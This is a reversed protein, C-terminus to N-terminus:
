GARHSARHRPGPVKVVLAPSWLSNMFMRNAQLRIRYTGPKLKASTWTRSARFPTTRESGNRVTVMKARMRNASNYTASFRWDLVIRGKVVEVKATLPPNWPVYAREITIPGPFLGPDVQEVQEAFRQALYTEGTPTPHIGDYLYRSSAWIGGDLPAVVVKNQLISSNRALDALEDNYEDRIEVPINPTVLEGLVIKVGSDNDRVNAIYTKWESIVLDIRARYLALMATYSVGHNSRPVDLFDNTSLYSILIDPQFQAVEAGIHDVEESLMTGSTADHDTDWGGALYHSFKSGYSTPAKKPGVLDVNTVGQRKLEMDFRYRWTYDGNRGQTISDGTMMIRTTTQATASGAGLPVGAILLAAALAGAALLKAKM